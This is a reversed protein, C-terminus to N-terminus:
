YFSYILAILLLQVSLFLISKVGTFVRIEQDNIEPFEHIFPSKYVIQFCCIRSNGTSDSFVNM